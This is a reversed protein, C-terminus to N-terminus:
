IPADTKRQDFLSIQSEDVKAPACSRCIDGPRVYHRKHRIRGCKPCSYKYLRCFKKPIKNVTTKARVLM